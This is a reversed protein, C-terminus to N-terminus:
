QYLEVRRRSLSQPFHVEKWVYYDEGRARGSDLDALQTIAEFGANRSQIPHAIPAPIPPVSPLMITRISNSHGGSSASYASVTGTVRRPSPNRIGLDHQPMSSDHFSDLISQIFDDAGGARRTYQPQFDSDPTFANWSSDSQPSALQSPGSSSTYPHLLLWDSAVQPQQRADSQRTSTSVPAPKKRVSGVVPPMNLGAVFLGPKARSGYECAAGHGKSRCTLCPLIGDCKRKRRRCSFCAAGKPLETRTLGVPKPVYTCVVVSGRRARSCPGCPSKGDCRLKRQRCLTCTPTRTPAKTQPSPPITASSM